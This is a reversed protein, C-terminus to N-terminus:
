HLNPSRAATGAHDERLEGPHLDQPQPGGQERVDGTPRDWPSQGQIAFLLSQM